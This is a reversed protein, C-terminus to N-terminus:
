NGVNKFSAKTSAIFLFCVNRNKGAHKLHSSFIHINYQMVEEELCGTTFVVHLKLSHMCRPSDPFKERSFFHKRLLIRM